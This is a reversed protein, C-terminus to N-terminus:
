MERYCRNDNVSSYRVKRSFSRISNDEMTESSFKPLSFQHASVSVQWCNHGSAVDPSPFQKSWAADKPLTEKYYNSIDGLIIVISLKDVVVHTKLCTHSGRDATSKSFLTVYRRIWRPHIMQSICVNSIAIECEFYAIHAWELLSLIPLLTPYLILIPKWQVVIRTKM